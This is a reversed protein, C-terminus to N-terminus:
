AMVQGIASTVPQGTQVSQGLDGQVAALLHNLYQVIFPDNFGYAERLEDIREQSTVGGDMGGAAMASVPDGPILYLVVFAVTYAAWLVGAALLVRLGIYRLM